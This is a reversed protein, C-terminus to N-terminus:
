RLAGNPILIAAGLAAFVLLAVGFVILRIGARRVVRMADEAGMAEFTSRDIDPGEEDVFVPDVVDGGAIADRGAVIFMVGALPIVVFLSWVTFMAGLLGLGFCGMAAFSLLKHRERTRSIRLVHRAEGAIERERDPDV